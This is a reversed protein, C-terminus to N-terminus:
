SKEENPNTVILLLTSGPNWPSRPDVRVRLGLDRCDQVFRCLTEGSLGYPEGTLVRDGDEDLWIRGHDLARQVHRRQCVCPMGGTPPGGSGYYVLCRLGAVSRPCVRADSRRWTPFRERYREETDDTTATKM